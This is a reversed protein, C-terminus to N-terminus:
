RGGRLPHFWSLSGGGVQGGGWRDWACVLLQHDGAPKSCKGGGAEEVWGLVRRWGGFGPAGEQIVCLGVGWGMVENAKMVSGTSNSRQGEVGGVQSDPWIRIETEFSSFVAM